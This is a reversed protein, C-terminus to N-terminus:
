PGGGKRGAPPKPMQNPAQRRKRKSRSLRPYRDLAWLPARVVTDKLGAMVTPAVPQLFPVGFSRMSAIHLTLFSTGAIFGFVGLFGSLLLLPFRVLRVAMSTSYNPVAFGTIGATAIVIVTAPAVLGAQVAAEGIVLAGVISVTQGVARPLRLGAEQLVEFMTEMLIVEGLTPLPTGERGGAVSLAMPTPIMEHHFTTLIVYLSPLTLATLLAFFRLWRFATGAWFSHYYDGSAQLYQWFNSPAILAFPTNDAIIGVHGELIAGCLRDPRETSLMAGFPSLPNDQMFQELQGSEIISDVEIKQLRKRVERVVSRDAIGVIYALAVDTKTTSGVQMRRIRLRPHRIRRRLLAVNLVLSEVMGDRPGRVEAESTPEEVSRGMHWRTDVLLINPSGDLLLATQGTLVADIAEQLQRTVKVQVAHLVTEKFDLLPDQEVTPQRFPPNTFEVASTLVDQVTSADALGNLAVLLGRRGGHFGCTFERLIADMNKGLAKKFIRQNASLDRSAQEVM